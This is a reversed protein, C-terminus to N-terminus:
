HLVSKLLAKLMDHTEVLRTVDLDRLFSFYKVLFSVFPSWSGADEGGDSPLVTTCKAILAKENKSALFQKLEHVISEYSPNLPPEIVLFDQLQAGNKERLVRAIELLFKDLTPTAM